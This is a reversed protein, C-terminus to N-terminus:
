ITSQDTSTKQLINSANIDDATM